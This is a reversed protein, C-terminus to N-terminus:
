LITPDKGGHEDRLYNLIIRVIEEPKKDSTDIVIDYISEDEIDIGYYDRYRKAESRERDLMERLRDDRRGGERKIIRDLRVDRDAKLLVKIAPIGNLHAMWGALRGELIVDGKKLIDVQYKDLERDVEPHEECYKSFDSLSMGRKEAEKRFIEGAYVHKIALKKSLMRSITTTGSGPPGSITITVM